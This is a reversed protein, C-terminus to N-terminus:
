DVTNTPVRNALAPRLDRVWYDMAGDALTNSHTDSYPSGPAYTFPLTPTPGTVTAGATNDVNGVGTSSGNYYGDTMLINFSQRCELHSTSKNAGPEESWPGNNDAREFYRGVGRLATRLPTGAPQMVHGYLDSYFTARDTGAFPRVGRVVARGSSVGDITRSGVNIAAFGVRVNTSQNAFARGIGARSTLVRSRYYSYWNAFNQVEENYTCTTPTAGCDTRDSGGPYSAVGPTILVETYDNVNWTPSGAPNFQYYVAPWFTRSVNSATRTFPTGSGDWSEWEAQQTNNVTLDRCGKTTDFPNHPACSVAVNGM